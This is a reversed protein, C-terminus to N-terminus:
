FKVSGISVGENSIGQGERSIPHAPVEKVPCSGQTQAVRCKSSLQEAMEASPTASAAALKGLLQLFLIYPVRRDGLFSSLSHLINDVRQPSPCPSMTVTDLAVGIFTRKQSPSLSSKEM